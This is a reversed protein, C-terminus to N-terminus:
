RFKTFKVKLGDFKESLAGGLKADSVGLVFKKLKKPLNTSIFNRLQDTVIGESIANANTLADLASAFPLFASLSYFIIFYNIIKDLATRVRIQIRM